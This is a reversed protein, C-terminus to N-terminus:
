EVLEIMHLEGETPKGEMWVYTILYKRENEELLGNVLMPSHLEVKKEEDGISVVIIEERKRVDEVTCVATTSVMKSQHHLYGVQLILCLLLVLLVRKETKDSKRKTVRYLLYGACLITVFTCALPIISAVEHVRYSILQYMGYNAFEEQVIYFGWLLVGIIIAYIILSKEKKNENM